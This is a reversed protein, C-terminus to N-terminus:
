SVSGTNGSREVRSTSRPRHPPPALTELDVQLRSLAVGHEDCLDRLWQLREADILRTSVVVVDVANRILLTQLHRYGGLVPYGHVRVHAQNPDDDIFGLMRYRKHPDNLLERAAVLGGDGAGYIVLRSGTQRWRNVFESILRFSARSGTLMLLLLAAYVVFVARSYGEFRSLYLILLEAGITGFVVARVFVISDMLGFYRWLGQYAGVAFLAVMQTGLVLPLSELFSAFNAQLAEGAWLLRYSAYYASSVLCMDLLVEAARRRYVFDIILPTIKGSTQRVDADEYVQIRALYAAFIAMGVLFGVVLLSSWTGDIHRVAVAVTGALAALSWLLAVAVRESLGISVLRHSSHDLGGTSASRGSLLRSLTVLTMDFIPILLVLVPLAVVSLLNATGGDQELPALTVVAFNLGLFLAGSDGMFISAPHLNYVLFGATAGLVVALYRAELYAPSTVDVPWAAVLWAGGAILAVGACLGDMNDLLNFANTIGVIWFITLLSDLTLSETWGLRYRFFVFVSAIAIEAVLKTSARLSVVDDTLGVIFIAVSCALLIAYQGYGFLATVCALSTLTIAVGGFLATTKSHWRDSTPPAVQGLGIAMLRSVPVLVLSTALAIFFPVLLTSLM